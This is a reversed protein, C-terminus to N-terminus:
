SRNNCGNEEKLKKSIAKRIVAKNFVPRTFRKSGACIGTVTNNQDVRYRRGNVYVYVFKNM